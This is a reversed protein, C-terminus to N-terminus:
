REQHQIPAPDPDVACDVSPAPRHTEPPCCPAGDGSRTRRSLWWMVVGVALVVAAGLLWPSALVGGFVGLGTTLAAAGLLAPGACCLVPLAVLAAVGLVTRSQHRPQDPGSM